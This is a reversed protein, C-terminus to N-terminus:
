FGYYHGLLEAYRKFFELSDVPSWVCLEGNHEKAGERVEKLLDDVVVLNMDKYPPALTKLLHVLHEADERKMFAWLALTNETKPFLLYTGPDTEDLIVWVHSDDSFERDLVDESLCDM